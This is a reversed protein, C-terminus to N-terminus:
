LRCDSWMHPGSCTAQRFTRVSGVMSTLIVQHLEDGTALQGLQLGDREGSTVDRCSSTNVLQGPQTMAEAALSHGRRFTPMGTSGAQVACSNVSMMWSGVINLPATQWAVPPRSSLREM